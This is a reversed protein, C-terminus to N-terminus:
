VLRFHSFTLLMGSREMEPLTKKALFMPHVDPRFDPM